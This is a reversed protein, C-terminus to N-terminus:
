FSFILKCLCFEVDIRITKDVFLFSSNVLLFLWLLLTLFSYVCEHCSVEDWSSFSTWRVAPRLPQLLQPWRWSPQQICWFCVSGALLCAFYLFKHTNDELYIWTFAHINAHSVSVRCSGTLITNELTFEINETQLDDSSTHHAQISENSASVLQSSPCYPTWM